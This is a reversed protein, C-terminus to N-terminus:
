WIVGSPLAFRCGFYGFSGNGIGFFSGIWIVVEVMVLTSGDWKCSGIM